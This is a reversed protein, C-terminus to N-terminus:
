QKQLSFGPSGSSNTDFPAWADADGFLPAVSPGAARTSRSPEPKSENRPSTSSPQQPSQQQKTGSDGSSDSGSSPGPPLSRNQAAVTKYISMAQAVMGAPDNAAAPLLLTNGEKAINSFANLYQEAVRLAAAESGGPGTVAESVIAIGKATADARRYIAEAEGTARNIADTRAAESKLIITEKEGEAQNIKAQKTGESELIQARKRREAEAQLEMAAKVGPPPSIDRIEYRMCQLGWDTAAEQISRVINQNLVAREEFTKDLTIKGLESRMTTQALQVVAFYADEVGYSARVPDIVKVFLVGDIMLSVNDKTIASQNPITIAMEKLSHVYAIQDVLPILLHIGPTLTKCYKGFREVVFATQQPVIRIGYNIPPVRSRTNPDVLGRYGSGSAFNARSSATLAATPPFSAAIGPHLLNQTQSLLSSGLARQAGRLGRLSHRAISAQM